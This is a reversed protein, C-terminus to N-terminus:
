LSKVPIRDKWILLPEDATSTIDRKILGAQEAENLKKLLLELEITKGALKQYHSAIANATPKRQQSALRVAQLILKEEKLALKNYLKLNIKKEKRKKTAQTILIIALVTTPITILKAGHRAIIQAIQSWTKIPQWYNAIALGFPLLKEEIQYINEPNDPYATLSIQVYKQESSSGTNFIASEKWYLIVETLNSEIHRFAFFRGTIPPNQLLQVDKLDLQTVRPPRGTSQPVRILSAEWTHHLVYSDGIEVSVFITEETKNIPTYAYLLARDRRAIEEFKTDRYVFELTYKPIEPFVQTTAQKGGPSQILVELPGETLAFVPVQITLILSTIILLAVIKALDRKSININMYKRLKGCAPCFNQDDKISPNCNPCPTAKPKSTFIQIKWIKESLSVLILTGLFILVWGGLLHFANMAAEMGSHYGIFVIMIIRIINLTYILPFGAFFVIAKKWTAGRAIYAVFVAFVTFGIFSYIGACAVDIAFTLPTGGLKELTIVPTGYQTALSVPLGVAKLTHYAAESSLTSLTTGVAYVIELPPPTLFLLFAIPFALVKLTKTNFILLILGAAFIPLSFMHYELPHFTYFGHWYLLFAALCLMAGVAEHFFIAKRTSNHTELTIVARLMKRKRYLLYTLLFPIALIYSTLESRIAENGVITLDPYYIAILVLTIIAVKVGLVVKNRVFSFHLPKMKSKVSRCFDVRAKSM